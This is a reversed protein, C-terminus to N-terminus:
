RLFFVESLDMLYVQFSGYSVTGAVLTDKAVELKLKKGGVLQVDLFLKKNQKRFDKLTSIKAFPISIKLEGLMGELHLQKNMSVREAKISVGKNDLIQVRYNKAPVFNSEQADKADGLAWLNTALSVFSFILFFSLFLSTRKM